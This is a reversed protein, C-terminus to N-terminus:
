NHDMGIGSGVLVEGTNGQSDIVGMMDFLGLNDGVELGQITDEFIFLTSEGTEDIEVSFYPPNPEILTISDIATFLGNFTGSGSSTTFSADYLMMDSVDYVMFSMNNGSVAGPLIPGGFESLDVSSIATIELQSGTWTGAGVLIMGTAGTSDVIGAM